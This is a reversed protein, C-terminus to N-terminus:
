RWGYVSHRERCRSRGDASSAKDINDLAKGRLSQWTCMTSSNQGHEIDWGSYQALGVSALGAIVPLSFM